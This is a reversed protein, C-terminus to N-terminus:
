GADAASGMGAIGVHDALCEVVRPGQADSDAGMGTVGVSHCESAALLM